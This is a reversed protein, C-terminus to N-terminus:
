KTPEQRVVRLVLDYYMFLGLGVLGLPVSVLALGTGVLLFPSWAVLRDGAPVTPTPVEPPQQKKV